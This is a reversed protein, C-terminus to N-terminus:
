ILTFSRGSEKNEKMEKGDVWGLMVKEEMFLERVLVALEVIQTVASRLMSHM